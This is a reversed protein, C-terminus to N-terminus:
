RLGNDGIHAVYGSVNRTATRVFGAEGLGRAACHERGKIEFEVVTVCFKEPGGAVVAGNKKQALLYVADAALPTTIARACAGAEIKWWGHTAPPGKGTQGLAVLLLDHGDNCVTYGAPTATKRAQAELMDFLEANGATAPFHMRKRFDALALSTAPDPKADTAAIRYGNDRLLRRAGALQAALLSPFAPAEDFTMTWNRKGHTDLAAFPLAYSDDGSCYSEMVKQRLVFNSDRVCVPFNGGWARQPGSHGLGSRAYILYNQAALAEGRAAQCDGPAIRTWGRTESQPSTIAATAAYLVYSTRNCLQLSAEAPAAWGALALLCLLALRLAM